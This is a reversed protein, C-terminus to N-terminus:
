ARVELAFRIHPVFSSAMVDEETHNAGGDSTDADM